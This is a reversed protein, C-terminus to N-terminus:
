NFIDECGPPMQDGNMRSSISIFNNYTAKHNKLSIGFYIPYVILCLVINAFMAAYCYACLVILKIAALIFCLIYVILSLLFPREEKIKIHSGEYTATYGSVQKSQEDDVAIALTLTPISYILRIVPDKFAVCIIATFALLILPAYSQFKESFVGGKYLGIFVGYAVVIIGCAILRNIDEDMLEHSTKIMFECKERNSSGNSALRDAEENFENIKKRRQLFTVLFFIGGCVVAMLIMVLPRGFFELIKELFEGLKDM